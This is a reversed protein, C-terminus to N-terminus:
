PEARHRAWRPNTAWDCLLQQEPTVTHEATTTAPEATTTM